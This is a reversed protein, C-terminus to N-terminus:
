PLASVLIDSTLSNNSWMIKFTEWLVFLNKTQVTDLVNKKLLKVCVLILIIIPNIPPIYVVGFRVDKTSGILTKSITFWLTFDSGTNENLFKVNEAVENKIIVAIGGSKRWM